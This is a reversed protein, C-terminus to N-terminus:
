KEGRSKGPRDLEWVRIFGWKSSVAAFRGSRSLAAAEIKRDEGLSLTAIEKATAGDYIKLSGKDSQALFTGGDATLELAGKAVDIIPSEAGDDGGSLNFRVLRIKTGDDQFAGKKAARLNVTSLVALSKGDSTVAMAHLSGFWSRGSLDAVRRPPANGNLDHITVSQTDGDWVALGTGHPTFAFCAFGWSFDSVATQTKGDENLIGIVTQSTGDAATFSANPGAVLTFHARIEKLFDWSYPVTSYAAALKKGDPSYALMPAFWAQQQYGVATHPGEQQRDLRGSDTDWTRLLLAGQPPNKNEGFTFGRMAALQKGDPSFALAMPRTNVTEAPRRAPTLYQKLAHQACDWLVVTNNPGATALQTGDDSIALYEYPPTVGKPKEYDSVDVECVLRPEAARAFQCTSGLMGLLVLATLLRLM